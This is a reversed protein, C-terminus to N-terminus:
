LAELKLADRYFGKRLPDIEALESYLAELEQTPDFDKVARQLKLLLCLTLFPWKLRSREPEIDILERCRQEERLLTEKLVQM